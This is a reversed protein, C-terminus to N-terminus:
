LIIFPPFLTKQSFFESYCSFSLKLSYTQKQALSLQTCVWNQCQYSRIGVWTVEDEKAKERSESFFAVYLYLRFATNIRCLNRQTSIVM